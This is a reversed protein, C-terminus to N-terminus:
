FPRHYTQHRHGLSASVVGRGRQVLRTARAQREVDKTILGRFLDLGGVTMRGCGSVLGRLRTITRRGLSDARRLQTTALVAGQSFARRRIWARTLRDAPVEDHAVSEACAVIIGGAKVIGATFITDEGGSLALSEDFRLGARRVTDLDLLLNFTAAAPLRTGTPYTPRFFHGSAPIWPDVDDPLVSVLRGMVADADYTDWTRVLHVLWDQQPVEDDDIFALLRSSSSEDLARNRAAAIGPRPEHVYRVPLDRPEACVTRASAAPDNDVVLIEVEALDFADRSGAVVADLNAALQDPRRFTLIAVTLAPLPGSPTTM